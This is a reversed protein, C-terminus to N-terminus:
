PYLVMPDNPGNRPVILGNHLHLWDGPTDMPTLKEWGTYSIRAMPMKGRVCAGVNLTNALCVWPARIAAFGPRGNVLRRTFKTEYSASDDDGLYKKITTPYASIAADAGDLMAMPVNWAYYNAVDATGFFFGPNTDAADVNDLEGVFLMGTRMPSNYDEFYYMLANPADFCFNLRMRQTYYGALNTSGGVETALPVKGKPRVGANANSTDTHILRVQLNSGAPSDMLSWAGAGLRLGNGVTIRAAIGSEDVWGYPSFSYDDVEVYNSSLYTKIRWMGRNQDTTALLSLVAGVMGSTFVGSPSYVIRPSAAAVQFGNPGAAVTALINLASAWAADGNNSNETWRGVLMMERFWWIALHPGWGSAPALPVLVNRGWIAVM